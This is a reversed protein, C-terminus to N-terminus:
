PAYVFPHQFAQLAIRREVGREVRVGTRLDEVRIMVTDDLPHWLLYIDLAGNRRYALERELVAAETQEASANATATAM